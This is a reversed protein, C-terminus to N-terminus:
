GSLDLYVMGLTREGQCITIQSPWSYGSRTSHWTILITATNAIDHYDQTDTIQSYVRGLVAFGSLTSQEVNDRSYGHYIQSLKTWPFIDLVFWSDTFRNINAVLGSNRFEHHQWPGSKSSNTPCISVTCIFGVDDRGDRWFVLLLATSSSTSPIVGQFNILSCFTM